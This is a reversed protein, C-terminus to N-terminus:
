CWWPNSFQNPNCQPFHPIYWWIPPPYTVYLCFEVVSQQHLVYHVFDILLASFKFTQILMLDKQPMEKQFFIKFFFSFNVSSNLQKIEGNRVWYGSILILQNKTSIVSLYALGCEYIYWVKFDHKQWMQSLIHESKVAAGCHECRKKLQRFDVIIRILRDFRTAPFKKRLFCTM